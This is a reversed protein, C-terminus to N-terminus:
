SLQTMKIQASRLLNGSVPDWELYYGLFQGSNTGINIYIEYKKPGIGPAMYQVSYIAFGDRYFYTGTIDPNPPASLTAGLEAYGKLECKYNGCYGMQLDVTLNFANQVAFTSLSLIQWRGDLSIEPTGTPPTTSAQPQNFLLAACGSLMLLPVVLLAIFWRRSSYM